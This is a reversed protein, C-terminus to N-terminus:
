SCPPIATELGASALEPGGWAAPVRAGFRQKVFDYVHGLRARAAARMDETLAGARVKAQDTSWVRKDLQPEVFGIGLFDTLGRVTERGNPGFMDEYFMYHIREVPVAAELANITARYDSRRVLPQQGLRSHFLAEPGDFRALADKKRAIMMRVSSWFRDVPDRMLFVFRAGAAQAAMEAYTASNLLAYTPSIEGFARQADTRGDFVSLYRAVGAHAGLLTAMDGMKAIEDPSGAIHPRLGAKGGGPKLNRSMVAALRAIEALQTNEQRHWFFHLEKVRPVYVEPHDRLYNYLWTTGAKQAGIGYFLTQGASERADLLRAM